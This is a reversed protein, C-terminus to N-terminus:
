VDTAKEESGGTDKFNGRASSCEAQSRQLFEEKSLKKHTQTIDPQQKVEEPNLPNNILSEFTVKSSPGADIVYELRSLHPVEEEGVRAPEKSAAYSRKDASSAEM